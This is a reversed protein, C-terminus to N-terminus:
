CVPWSAVPEIPWSSETPEPWSTQPFKTATYCTSAPLSPYKHVDSSAPRVTFCTIAVIAPLVCTFHNFLANM